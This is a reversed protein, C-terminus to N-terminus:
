NFSRTAPNYKIRTPAKNTSAGTDLGPPKFAKQASERIGQKASAIAANMKQLEALSDAYKKAFVMQSPELKEGANSRTWMRKELDFDDGELQKKLTDREKKLDKVDGLAPNPFYKKNFRMLEGQSGPVFSAETDTATSKPVRSYQNRSSKYITEGTPNGNEDLLPMAVPRGLADQAEQATARPSIKRIDSGAQAGWIASAQDVAKEPTMGPQKMLDEVMMRQRQKAEYAQAATDTVSQVRKAETDYHRGTLDMQQNEFATKQQLEQAQLGLAQQKLSKQVELEQAQMLAQQQLAQRKTAAEMEAIAYQNALQDKAIRDRQEIQQQNQNIDYGTKYAEVLSPAQGFTFSRLQPM